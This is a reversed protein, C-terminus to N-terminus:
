NSLHYRESGWERAALQICASTYTFLAAQVLPQQETPGVRTGEDKPYKEDAPVRAHYPRKAKGKRVQRIQRDIQPRHRTEKYLPTSM